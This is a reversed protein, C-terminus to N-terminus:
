EEAKLGFVNKDTRVFTDGRNIKKVLTSVISERDLKIGNAEKVRDIIDSIHLPVGATRLVDHVMAIQSTSKKPRTKPEASSSRLRRVANLQAQLSIEIARFAADEVAKEIDDKNVSLIRRLRGALAVLNV